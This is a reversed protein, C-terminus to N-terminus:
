MDVVGDGVSDGSPQGSSDASTKVHRQDCGQVAGVDGDYTFVCGIQRNGTERQFFRVQNGNDAGPKLALDSFHHLAQAGAFNHVIEDIRIDEFGKVIALWVRERTVRINWHQHVHGVETRNFMDRVHDVGEQTQARSHLSLQYEDAVARLGRDGLM